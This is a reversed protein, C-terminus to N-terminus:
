DLSLRDRLWARGFRLDREVTRLSVDLYDAIEAVGFGALYSLQVAEVARAHLSELHDLAQDLALMDIDVEAEGEINALTVQLQGGGRKARGSARARDVLVQRMVRAALAYFHGRDRVDLHGNDIKLFAENVLATPRVTALAPVSKLNSHALVKLREYVLPILVDRAAEEGAGWRRLLRTIDATSASDSPM